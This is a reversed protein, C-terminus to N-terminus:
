SGSRVYAKSWGNCDLENTAKPAVGGSAASKATAAATAAGATGTLSLQRRGRHRDGAGAAAAMEAQRWTVRARIEDLIGMRVM